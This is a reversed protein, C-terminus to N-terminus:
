RRAHACAEDALATALAEALAAPRRADATWGVGHEEVLRRLEPLDSVVVPVGAAIYEFVKNPLALRHNECDDELLSM